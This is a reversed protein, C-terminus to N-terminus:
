PIEAHARAFADVDKQVSALSQHLTKRMVRDMLKRGPRGKIEESDFGEYLRLLGKRGHTAAIAYAAAASYSYAFALPTSALNVMSAPRGLATLSLVRKSAAQQSHDRLQAGSLLAGAEGYRPDGATYMAMGEVLWVPMRGSTKRVLSAHTMEHAITRRRGAHDQRGFSRWVVLLRQGAVSTVRRAPGNENVSAEAIANLTGLARVDRTLAKTDSNSRSVVVLMRGPAKLGPLAKKMRARGAELDRMFGAVKLGKPTLAVFHESRRVTYAGRQWPAEIGAPRDLKVRWGAPTKIFRMSSRIAFTSDVGDFDYRTLTHMTASRKGVTTSTAEIEVSALPLAAASRAARRDRVQQSGTSTAALREVDGDQIARSRELLLNQMQEADGPPKPREAPKGATATPKSVSPKKDGCGAALLAAGAM